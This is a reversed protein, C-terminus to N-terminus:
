AVLEFLQSLASLKQRAGLTRVWGGFGDEIHLDYGRLLTQVGYKRIHLVACLTRHFGEVVTHVARFCPPLGTSLRRSQRTADM